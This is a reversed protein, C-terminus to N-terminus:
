KGGKVPAGRGRSGGGHGWLGVNGWLGGGVKGHILTRWDPPGQEGPRNNGDERCGAVGVKGPPGPSRRDVFVM